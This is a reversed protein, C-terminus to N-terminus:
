IENPHVELFVKKNDSKAIIRAPNGVVLVGRPINCNVSSNMGIITNDGVNCGQKISTNFGVFVTSGILVNGGVCVGPSLITNSMVEVDHGIIVNPQVFVNDGLIVNHSISSAYGIVVGNGIKSRRSLNSKPHILTALSCNAEILRIYLIERIVPEGVGVVVEIEITSSEKKKLFDIFNLVEFQESKKNDDIFFIKNWRKNLLNISEAIEFVELGLGGFGYIALQM